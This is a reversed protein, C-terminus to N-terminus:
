VELLLSNHNAEYGLLTNVNSLAAIAANNSPNNKIAWEFM